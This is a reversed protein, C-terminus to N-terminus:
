RSGMRGHRRRGGMGGAALPAVAAVRDPVAAPRVGRLRRRSLWDLGALPGLGPDRPVAPAAGGTCRGCVVARPACCGASPTRRASGGSCRASPPSVWSSVSRPWATRRRKGARREPESAAPPRPQLDARHRGDGSDAGLHEIRALFRGTADHPRRRAPPPEERSGADNRVEQGHNNRRGRHPLLTRAAARGFALVLDSPLGADSAGRPADYRHPAGPRTRGRLRM